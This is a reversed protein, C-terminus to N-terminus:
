ASIRRCQASLIVAILLEFPNGFELETQAHPYTAELIDLEAEAVARTVKRKPFPITVREGNLGPAGSSEAFVQKRPDASRAPPMAAFLVMGNMFCARDLAAAPGPDQGLLKRNQM